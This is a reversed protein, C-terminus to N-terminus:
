KIEGIYIRREHKPNRYDSMKNKNLSMITVFTIKKINSEVNVVVEQFKSHQKYMLNYHGDAMSIPRQKLLLAVILKFKICTFGYDRSVDSGVRIDDLHNTRIIKWGNHTDALGAGTTCDRTVRENIVDEFAEYVSNSVEERLEKLISRLM